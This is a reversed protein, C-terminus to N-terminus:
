RLRPPLTRIRPELMRLKPKEERPRSKWQRLVESSLETTRYENGHIRTYAEIADERRELLGFQWLQITMAESVPPYIKSSAEFGFQKSWRRLAIIQGKSLQSLVTYAQRRFTPDDNSM